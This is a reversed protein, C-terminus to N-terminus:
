EFFILIVFNSFCGVFRYYFIDLKKFFTFSFFFSFPFEIHRMYTMYIQISIFCFVYCYACNLREHIERCRIPKVTDLLTRLVCSLRKITNAMHSVHMSILYSVIYQWKNCSLQWCSVTILSAHIKSPLLFM